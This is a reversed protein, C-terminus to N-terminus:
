KLTTPFIPQSKWGDYIHPNFTKSSLNSLFVEDSLNFQQSILM